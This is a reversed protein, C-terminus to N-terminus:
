CSTAGKKGMGAPCGQEAKMTVECLMMYVVKMSGRTGTMDASEVRVRARLWGDIEHRSKIGCAMAPSLRRGERGKGEHM